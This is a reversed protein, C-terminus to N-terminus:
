IFVGARVCHTSGVGLDEVAWGWSCGGSLVSQDTDTCVVSVVPYAPVHAGVFGGGGVLDM